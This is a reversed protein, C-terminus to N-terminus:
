TPDMKLMSDGDELPLDYILRNMDDQPIDLDLVPDDVEIQTTQEEHQNTQTDGTPPIQGGKKLFEDLSDLSNKIPEFIETGHSRSGTDNPNQGHLDEGKFEASLPLGLEISLMEVNTLARAAESRLHNIRKDVENSTAISIANMRRLQSRLRQQLIRLTSTTSPSMHLQADTTNEKLCSFIKKTTVEVGDMLNEQM